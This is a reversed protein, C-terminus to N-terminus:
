DLRVQFSRSTGQTFTEDIGAKHLYKRGTKPKEELQNIREAILAKFEEKIQTDDKPSELASSVNQTLHTTLSAVSKSVSGLWSNRLSWGGGPSSQPKPSQKVQPPEPFKEDLTLERDPSPQRPPEAQQQPPQFLLSSTSNSKPEQKPSTTLSVKATQATKEEVRQPSPTVGGAQLRPFTTPEEEDTVPGCKYAHKKVFPPEINVKEWEGSDSTNWTQEEAIRTVPRTNWEDATSLMSAESRESDSGQISDSLRGADTGDGGKTGLRRVGKKQAADDSSKGKTGLRVVKPRDDSKKKTLKRLRTGSSSDDEAGSSRNSIM